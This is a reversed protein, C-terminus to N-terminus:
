IGLYVYTYECLLSLHQNIVDREQIIVYAKTPVYKKFWKAQWVHALGEQTNTGTYVTCWDLESNQFHACPIRCVVNSLM